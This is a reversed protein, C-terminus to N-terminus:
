KPPNRRKTEKEVVARLQDIEGSIAKLRDVTVRLSEMEESLVEGLTGDRPNQRDLKFGPEILYVGGDLVVPTLQYVPLTLSVKTGNPLDIPGNTIEDQMITLEWGRPIDGVVRPPFPETNKFSADPKAPAPSASSQPTPSPPNDAAVLGVVPLWFAVLIFLCRSM